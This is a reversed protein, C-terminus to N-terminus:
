SLSQGKEYIIKGQKIKDVPYCSIIYGTGNEHRVVVCIYRKIYKRYYLYVNKDKESQKVLIPEKLTGTVEKEKSKMVPHKLTVITNWYSKSTRIARNLKSLVKLYDDM